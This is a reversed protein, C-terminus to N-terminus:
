RGWRPGFPGFSGGQPFYPCTPYGPGQPAGPAVPQSTRRGYAQAGQAPGYAFGSAPGIERQLMARVVAQTRAKMLAAQADSLSGAKVAEDIATNRIEVLQAELKAPDVGLEQAIQALTKGAQHLAILEEPTIGLLAAVEDHLTGALGATVGLQPAGMGARPGYALALGVVALGALVIWAKGKM